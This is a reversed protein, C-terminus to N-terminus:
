KIIVMKKAQSFEGVQIKYFYIGTACGQGRDDKGDWHITKFGATQFEDVLTKVEQGLINYITLRVHYDKSLSYRIETLPNFPNPYNQLLSIKNPVAEGAISFTQEGPTFTNLCLYDIPNGLTDEIPIHNVNYIAVCPDNNILDEGIYVKIAIDTAQSDVDTSSVIALYNEDEDFTGSKNADVFVYASDGVSINMAECPIIHIKFDHKVHRNDSGPAPKSMQSPQVNVRKATLFANCIDVAEPGSTQVKVDDFRLSLGQSFCNVQFLVGNVSSHQDWMMPFPGYAIDSVEIKYTHNEFDFDCFVIEYWTGTEYPIDMYTNPDQPPQEESRYNLRLYSSNLQKVVGVLIPPDIGPNYIDVEGNIVEFYSGHDIYPSFMVKASISISTDNSVPFYYWCSPFGEWGTGGPSSHKVLRVSQDRIEVTDGEWEHEYWGNNLIQNDPRNFNDQFIITQSLVPSVTILELLVLNPAFLLLTLTFLAFNIRKIKVMSKM